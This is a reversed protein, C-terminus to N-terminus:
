RPGIGRYFVLSDDDGRNKRVSYMLLIFYLQILIFYFVSAAVAKDRELGKFHMLYLMFLTFICISFSCGVVDEITEYMELTRKPEDIAKRRYYDRAIQIDALLILVLLAVVASRFVTDGWWDVSMSIVFAAVALAAAVIIERIKHSRKDDYNEMDVM